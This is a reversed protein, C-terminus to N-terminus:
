RKFVQAVLVMLVYIGLMSGVGNMYMRAAFDAMENEFMGWPCMAAAESVAREPMFVSLPVGEVAQLLGGPALPLSPVRGNLLQVLMRASASNREGLRM